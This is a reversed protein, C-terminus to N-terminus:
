ASNTNKSVLVKRVFGDYQETQNISTNNKICLKIVDIATDVRNEASLYNKIVM